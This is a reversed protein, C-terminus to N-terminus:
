PKGRDARSRTASATGSRGKRKGRQLVTPQVQKRGYACMGLLPCADCRPRRAVCVKAAFDLIAWNIEKCRRGNVVLHALAHLEKDYRIDARWVRDTLRGLVRAMNVDVLPANRDHCLLIIANSIYQGVGPLLDIETKTLPLRGARACMEKSLARVSQARRKWLGLPRFHRQLEGRSASNLSRWSPFRRFFSPLANAVVEATTRQLLVESLVLQYNSASKNRWLFTRGHAQYWTLLTRRLRVVDLHGAL